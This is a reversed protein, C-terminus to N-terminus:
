GPESRVPAQSHGAVRQAFIETQHATRDSKAELSHSRFLGRTFLLSESAKIGFGLRVPLPIDLFGCTSM